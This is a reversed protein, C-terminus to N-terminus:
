SGEDKGLARPNTDGRQLGWARSEMRIGPWGGMELSTKEQLVPLLKPPKVVPLLSAWAEPTCDALIGTGPLCASPGRM